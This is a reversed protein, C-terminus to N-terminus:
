STISRRLRAVGVLSNGSDTGRGGVVVVGGLAGRQAVGM